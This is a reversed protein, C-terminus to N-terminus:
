NPVIGAFSFAHVWDHGSVSFPINL